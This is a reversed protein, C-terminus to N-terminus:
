KELNLTACVHGGGNECRKEIVGSNEDYTGHRDDAFCFWTGLDEPDDFSKVVLIHTAGAELGIAKAEDIYYQWNPSSVYYDLDINV